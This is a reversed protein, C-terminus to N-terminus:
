KKIISSSLLTSRYNGLLTSTYCRPSEIYVGFSASRASILTIYTRYNRYQNDCTQSGRWFSRPKLNRRLLVAGVRFFLIKLFDACETVRLDGGPHLGILPVYM